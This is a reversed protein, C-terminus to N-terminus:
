SITMLRQKIIKGWCLAAPLAGKRSHAEQPEGVGQPAGIEAPHGSNTSSGVTLVMLLVLLFFHVCAKETLFYMEM